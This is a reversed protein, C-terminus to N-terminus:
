ELISQIFFLELLEIPNMFLEYSAFVHETELFDSEYAVNFTLKIEYSEGTASAIIDLIDINEISFNENEMRLSVSDELSPLIFDVLLMEEPDEDIIEDVDVEFDTLAGTRVTLESVDSSAFMTNQVYSFTFLGLMTAILLYVDRKTNLRVM